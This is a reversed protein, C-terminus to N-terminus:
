LGVVSGFGDLLGPEAPDHLQRQLGIRVEPQGGFRHWSCDPFYCRQQHDHTSTKEDMGSGGCSQGPCNDQDYDHSWRVWTSLKSTVNYDVRATDNRRPHTENFQWFYNQSYPSTSVFSTNYGYSVGPCNSPSIAAGNYIGASATCLNPAPMFAMMAQGYAASTADYYQTGILSNVNGGALPNKGAAPNVLTADQNVGTSM